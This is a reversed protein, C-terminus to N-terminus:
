SRGTPKEQSEKGLREVLLKVEAVRDLPAIFIADDVAVVAMNQLGIATVLVGGDNRLLCNSSEIALVKGLVANNAGDKAALEWVAAWSGVDSWGMEVPIVIARSTKEMIGYDISINEVECFARPEPRVFVGDRVLGHVSRLILELSEPMLRRMEEILTSAKVLFIGANWFFRGSRVYSQALKFSPKEVFRAVPYGNGPIPDAAEVEIYGYETNPGDPVIGFTVIMGAEAHPIGAGVAEQFADADSISHDAPMLLMLDDRGSSLLWEAAFASAAATSRGIPELLIAELPAGAEAVEDRVLLHHEEAAVIISPEFQTGRVREITEVLLSRKSVIPLFQKPLQQRSVPWLRTGSGGALIV